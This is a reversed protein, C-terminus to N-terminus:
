AKVQEGVEDYFHNLLNLYPIAGYKGKLYNTEFNERKRVHGSKFEALSYLHAAEFQDKEVFWIQDKRLLESQLFISNQSTIILQAGKKNISLNNFLSFLKIVLNPHLRADFEDVFLTKGMELTNLIPGALYFFKQTGHSEDEDMSFRTKGVIQNFEDYVHHITECQTYIKAQENQIRDVLFEKLETPINEEISEPNLIMSKIDLISFDAVKMLNILKQHFDNQDNKMMTHGKYGDERISLVISLDHTFWDLVNTCIEDNFQAAVSLMLANDRVMNETQLMNGKRFLKSHIEINNDVTDRYFIQYEHSKPKFFLWESLVKEKTVEFGYRYLADKYLFVIEFESPQDKTTESLLFPQTEILKGQQSEKSSELVFRKFFALSEFLKTKGSANAGYVVATKM